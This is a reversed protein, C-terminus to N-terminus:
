AQHQAEVPLGKTRATPQSTSPQLTTSRPGTQRSTVSCLPPRGDPVPRRLSNIGTVHGSRPFARSTEIVEIAGPDATLCLTKTNTPQDLRRHTQRSACPGQQRLARPNG